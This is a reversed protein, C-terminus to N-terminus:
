LSSPPINAFSVWSPGGAASGPAATGREPATGSEPLVVCSGTRGSVRFMGLDIFCVRHAENVTPCRLLVSLGVGSPQPFVRTGRPTHTRMCTANTRKPTPTSHTHVRTHQTHAHTHTGQTCMCTRTHLYTCPHTPQTLFSSLSCTIVPDCPGPVRYSPCQLLRNADINQKLASPGGAGVPVSYSLCPGGVAWGLKLDVTARARPGESGVPVAHPRTREFISKLLSICLTGSTVAPFRGLTLFQFAAGGLCRAWALYPGHAPLAQDQPSCGGREGPGGGSPGTQLSHPMLGWWYDAPVLALHAATDGARLSVGM